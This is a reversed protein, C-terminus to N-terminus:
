RDIDLKLELRRRAHAIWARRMPRAISDATKIVIPEKREAMEAGYTYSALNLSEECGLARMWPQSLKRGGPSSKGSHARAIGGGCRSPRRPGEAVCM